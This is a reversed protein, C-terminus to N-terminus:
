LGPGGWSSWFLLAILNEENMTMILCRLVFDRSEYVLEAKTRNNKMLLWVIASGDDFFKFVM